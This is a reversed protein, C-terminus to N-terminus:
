AGDRRISRFSRVTEWALRTLLRTSMTKSRGFRRARYEIAM